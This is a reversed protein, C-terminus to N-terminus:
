SLRDSAPFIRLNVRSPPTGSSLGKESAGKGREAKKAMPRRLLKSKAKWGRVPSITAVSFPGLALAHLLASKGTGNAGILLLKSETRWAEVARKQDRALRWGFIDFLYREPDGALAAARKRHEDQASFGPRLVQAAKLMPRRVLRGPLPASPNLVSPLRILAEAM